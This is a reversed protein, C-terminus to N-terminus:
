LINRRIFSWVEIRLVSLPLAVTNIFFTKCNDPPGDVYRFPFTLGVEVIWLFFLLRIFISQVMFTVYVQFNSFLHFSVVADREAEIAYWFYKLYTVKTM